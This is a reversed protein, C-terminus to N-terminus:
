APKQEIQHRAHKRHQGNFRQAQRLRLAAAPLAHAFAQGIHRPDDQAHSRQAGQQQRQARGALLQAPTKM